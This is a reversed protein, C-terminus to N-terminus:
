VTVTQHCKKKKKKCFPLCVSAERAQNGKDGGSNSPTCCHPLFSLWSPAPWLFFPSSHFSSSFFSPLPPPPPLLPSIYSLSLLQSVTASRALPPSSSSAAFSCSEWGPSSLLLLLLLLLLLCPHLRCDQRVPADWCSWFNFGLRASHPINRREEKHREEKWREGWRKDPSHTSWCCAAPLLCDPATHTHTHTHAHTHTHTRTHTHAHTHTHTCLDQWTYPKWCCTAGRTLAFHPRVKDFHWCRNQQSTTQRQCKSSQYCKVAILIMRLATLGSPLQDGGFSTVRGNRKMMKVWPWEPCFLVWMM